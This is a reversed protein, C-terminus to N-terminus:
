LSKFALTEGKTDRLEVRRYGTKPVIVLLYPHTVVQAQTSDKLPSNIMAQVVLIEGRIYVELLEIRYGATHQKGFSIFVARVASFDVQPAQPRPVRGSHLRTYFSTYEKMDSLVEVTPKQYDLAANDGSELVSHDVTDKEQPTGGFVLMFVLPLLFLMTKKM